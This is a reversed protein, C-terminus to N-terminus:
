GNGSGVSLCMRNLMGNSSATVSAAVVSETSRVISVLNMVFCVSGASDISMPLIVSAALVANKMMACMSRVFCYEDVVRYYVGNLQPIPLVVHQTLM